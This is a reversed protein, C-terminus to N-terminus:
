GGSGDFIEATLQLKFLAKGSADSVTLHWEPSAKLEGVIGRALDSLMGIAETWAAEASPVDLEHDRTKLGQGIQMHFPPM